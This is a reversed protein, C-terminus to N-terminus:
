LYQEYGTTDLGEYPRSEFRLPPMTSSSLQRVTHLIPDSYRQEYLQFRHASVPIETMSSRSDTAPSEGNTKLSKDKVPTSEMISSFVPTSGPTPTSTSDSFGNFTSVVQQSSIGDADRGVKIEDAKLEARIGGSVMDSSEDDNTGRELTEGRNISTERSVKNEGKLKKVEAVLLKKEVKLKKHKAELDELAAAIKTSASNTSVITLELIANREKLAQQSAENAAIINM